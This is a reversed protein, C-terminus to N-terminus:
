LRGEMRKQMQQIKVPDWRFEKGSVAGKIKLEGQRIEKAIVERAVISKQAATLFSYDWRGGNRFQMASMELLMSKLQGVCGFNEDFLDEAIARLNPHKEHPWKRMIKGVFLGFEACDDKNDQFYREFHYLKSRRSIQGSYKVFDVLDFSGALFYHCGSKNAMSKITDMVAADDGFRMMHYAEDITCVRTKRYKLASEVQKRIAPITERRASNAILRGNSVEFYTKHTIGPEFLQERMDEFLPRFSHRSEGNAYAEVLITPIASKDGVLEPDLKAVIESVLKSLLTSQQNGDLLSGGPGTIEM